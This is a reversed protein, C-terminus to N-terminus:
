ESGIRRFSDSFACKNQLRCFQARRASYSYDNSTITLALFIIYIFLGTYVMPKLFYELHIRGYKLYTKIMICSLHFSAYIFVSIGIIRLHRNLGKFLKIKPFHKSRPALFLSLALIGLAFYGSNVLLTKIPRKGLLDFVAPGILFDASASFPSLLGM